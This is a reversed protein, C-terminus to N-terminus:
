LDLEGGVIHTARAPGALLLGRALGYRLWREWIFYRALM